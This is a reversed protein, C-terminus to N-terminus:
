IRSITKAQSDMVKLMRRKPVRRLAIKVIVIMPLELRIPLSLIMGGLMQLVISPIKKKIKHM